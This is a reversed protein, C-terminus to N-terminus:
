PKPACVFARAPMSTSTGIFRDREERVTGPLAACLQNAIVPKSVCLGMNAMAADAICFTGPRDAVDPCSGQCSITCFGKPHCRGTQGAAMFACDAATTCKDGIFKPTMVAPAGGNLKPLMGRDDLRAFTYGDAELKTLLADLTNMTFPHIDHFLLIGGNTSSLQSMVYKTMDNRMPDPVFRFTTPKCFGGGAAYCWDASDIHWGTSILGKDKIKQMTECTSSGFPFRFYKPVEGTGKIIDHTQVIEREVTAIPQEALNKHSQSHNALIFLPDNAIQKIINTATSNNVRMGNIFFTAPANHRRLIEMVKPTTTPNPGDDFTLVVRKSFGTRDPVRVGSCDTGDDKSEQQGEEYAGEFLPGDEAHCDDGECLEDQDAACGLGILSVVSATLLAPRCRM